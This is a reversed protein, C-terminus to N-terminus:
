IRCDKQGIAGSIISTAIRLDSLTPEKAKELADLVLSKENLDADMAAWSNRQM